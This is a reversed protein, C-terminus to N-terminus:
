ILKKKINFRGLIYKAFKKNMEFGWHGDGLMGYEGNSNNWDDGLTQWMGLNNTLDEKDDILSSKYDMKEWSFVYTKKPSLKILSEIINIYNFQAAKTSNIFSQVSLSNKFYKMNYGKGWFELKLNNTYSETGIYTCIPVRRDDYRLDYCANFWDCEDLPLRTRVFYPVIVVLYDDERLHELSLIWMDIVTQIDRSSQGNLLIEIGFENKIIFPWFHLDSNYNKAYDQPHAFSDGIVFLRPM